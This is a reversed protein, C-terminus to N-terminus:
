WLNEMCFSFIVHLVAETAIQPQELIQIANIQLSSQM